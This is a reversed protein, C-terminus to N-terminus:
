WESSAPRALLRRVVDQLTSAGTAVDAIAACIRMEVGHREALEAVIPATRLGEVTQALEERVQDPTLGQALLLGARHNRGHPSTCTAILDGMGALGLFTEERAGLATGLRTVEGLGRTMMAAVGNHGIGLAECIGAAIAVVNKCAGAIEVGVPDDNVYVRFLAQENVVSQLRRALAIDVSTVVAASPMDNVLEHAINPGSLTAFREGVIGAAVEGPRRGGSDLGKVLSLFAEAQDSFLALMQALASSPVAIVVVEWRQRAAEEITAVATTPALEVSPLYDPNRRTSNLHDVVSQSRAALTVSVDHHRQLIHTFAMGFSGAGVILWPRGSTM